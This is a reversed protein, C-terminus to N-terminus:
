WAIPDANSREQLRAQSESEDEALLSLAIWNRAQLGLATAAPFQAMAEAEVLAEEIRERLARETGWASLCLCMTVAAAVLWGIVFDSPGQRRELSVLTRRRLDVSPGSVQYRRLRFELEEDTM